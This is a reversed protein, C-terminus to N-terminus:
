GLRIREEDEEVYKKIEELDEVSFGLTHAHQIINGIPEGEPRGLRHVFALVQQKQEPNLRRIEEFLEQEIAAMIM